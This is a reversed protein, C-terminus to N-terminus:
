GQFLMYNQILAGNQIEQEQNKKEKEDKKRKGWRSGENFHTNSPPFIAYHDIRPYSIEAASQDFTQGRDAVAAVILALRWKAAAADGGDSSPGVQM